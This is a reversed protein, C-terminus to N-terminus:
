AAKLFAWEGQENPGDFTVSDYDCQYVWEFLARGPKPPVEGHLVRNVCLGAFGGKESMALGKWPKDAVAAEYRKAYGGALKALQNAPMDRFLHDEINDAVLNVFEAFKPNFAATEMRCITRYALVYPFQGVVNKDTELRVDDDEKSIIAATARAVPYIGGPLGRFHVKQCFALSDKRYFQKDKNASLGVADAAPEYTDPTVGEGCMIGDDGHVIMTILSQYHGAELGYRQVVLNIFSDMMNTLWSGSKMSSPGEPYIKNLSILTTQYIFAYVLALWLNAMRRTMWTAAARAVDWMLWPPITSDFASYDISLPTLGSKRATELIQQCAKDIVAPHFLGLFVPTGDENKIRRIAPLMEIFLAKGLCTDMKPMAVVGRLKSMLQGRYTNDKTRIYGASVNTRQNATAVFHLYPLIAKYSKAKMALRYVLTVQRRIKASVARQADTADPDHPSVFWKHVYDAFCSNTDVNLSSESSPGDESELTSDWVKDITADTIDLSHAPVLSEFWKLSRILASRDLEKKMPKDSWVKDFFDEVWGDRMDPFCGRPGIKEAQHAEVELFVETYLSGLDKALRNRNNSVFGMIMHAVQAFTLGEFIPTRHPDFNGRAMRTLWSNLRNFWGDVPSEPLANVLEDVKAYTHGLMQEAEKQSLFRGKNDDSSAFKEKIRRKAEKPDTPKYIFQPRKARARSAKAQKM